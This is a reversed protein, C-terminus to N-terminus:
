LIDLLYASHTDSPFEFFVAPFTDNLPVAFYRDLHDESSSDDHAKSYCDAIALYIKLSSSFDAHQSQQYTLDLILFSQRQWFEM